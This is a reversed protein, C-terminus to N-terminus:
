NGSVLAKNQYVIVPNTKLKNLSKFLNHIFLNIILLLNMQFFKGLNLFYFIFIM